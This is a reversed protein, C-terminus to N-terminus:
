RKGGYLIRLLFIFLNIFDLYLELAGLVAYKKVERAPTGAATFELALLKIKQVDWATLGV